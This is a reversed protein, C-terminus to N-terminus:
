CKHMNQSIWKLIYDNIIIILSIKWESKCINNIIYFINCPPSAIFQFCYKVISHLQILMFLSYLINNEGRVPSKRKWWIRKWWYILIHWQKNELLVIADVHM